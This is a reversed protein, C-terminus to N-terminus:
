CYGPSTFTLRTSSLQTEEMSLVLLVSNVCISHCLVRVQERLLIRGRQLREFAIFICFVARSCNDKILQVKKLYTELFVTKLGQFVLDVCLERALQIAEGLYLQFRGWWCLQVSPCSLFECMSERIGKLKRRGLFFPKTALM